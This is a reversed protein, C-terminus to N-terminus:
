RLSRYAIVAASPKEKLTVTLGQRMLERGTRVEKGGDFNEVEFRAKSELGRLKFNMSQEGSDPRRFVQV